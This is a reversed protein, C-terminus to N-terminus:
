SANVKFTKEQRKHNLYKILNKGLKIGNQEIVKYTICSSFYTLIVAIFYCIFLMIVPQLHIIKNLASTLWYAYVFHLLYCSYSVVGIKSLVKIKIESNQLIVFLFAFSLASIFPVFLFTLTKNYFFLFGFESMSSLVATMLLAPILKVKKLLNRKYIFYLSIGVCFVPLQNLINFYLFGNNEIKKNYTLCYIYEALTVLALIIVPIIFAINKFRTQLKKYLLFILPFILYFLMETGVSWGGPVINNNGPAYLGNLFLLNAIISKFTYQGPILMSKTKVIGDILNIIFYIIIGM